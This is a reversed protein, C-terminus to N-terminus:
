LYRATVMLHWGLHRELVKFVPDPMAEFWPQRIWEGRKYPEIQWPFIHDQEISEIMFRPGLMVRVQDATFTHALPCGTQAEPQDFGSEIMYNKWSHNAYVMLKLVSGSTMYYECQRIIREPDPSHHIVGWSFIMDYHEIPVTKSLNEADAVYFKGPQDYVRFRQRTLDLSKESLEVGVYQAGARAFNIAMTGIGCGIELVKKGCWDDFGCFDPIHPEARFKKAEVEDFYERSGLERQSHQINCPRSDWYERIQDINM